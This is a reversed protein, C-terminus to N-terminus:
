SWYKEYFIALARKIDQPIRDKSTVIAFKASEEASYRNTLNINKIIVPLMKLINDTNKKMYEMVMDANVDEHGEYWCDYDTVMSILSYCIEAERSLKAEGAATMGIIDAGWQRFLNSEARSSFQPGEINIYTKNTHLRIEPFNKSIIDGIESSFENCFPDAMSVHGVLGTTFFTLERWRTFDILQSPIVFDMPRLEERLSGVASVGILRRVGLYKLAWINAKMPIKTPPYIHGRGHRPLFAVKRGEVDVITIKDSPKGFPTDIDVEDVIKASSFSYLGSGGIVGIEVKYDM